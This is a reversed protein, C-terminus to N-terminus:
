GWMVEDPMGGPRFFVLWFSHYDILEGASCAVEAQAAKFHVCELQLRQRFQEADPIAGAREAAWETRLWWPYMRGAVLALMEPEHLRVWAVHGRVVELQVESLLAGRDEPFIYGMVRRDRYCPGGGDLATNGLGVQKKCGALAVRVRLGSSRSSSSFGSSTRRPTLAVRCISVLLGSRNAHRSCQPAAPM